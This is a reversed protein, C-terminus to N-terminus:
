KRSRRGRYVLDDLTTGDNQSMGSLTVAAKCAIQLIHLLATIPPPSPAMLRSFCLFSGEISPKGELGAEMLRFGALRVSPGPNSLVGDWVVRSEGVRQWSLVVTVMPVKVFYVPLM